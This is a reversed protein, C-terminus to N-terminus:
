YSKECDFYHSVDIDNEGKKFRLRSLTATRYFEIDRINLDYGYRNMNELELTWAIRTHDKQIYRFNRVSYQYEYEKLEQNKADYVITIERNKMFDLKLFDKNIMSNDYICTVRVEASKAIFNFNLFLLFYILFKIKM